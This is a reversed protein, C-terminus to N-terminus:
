QFKPRAAWQMKMALTEWYGVAPNTVVNLKAPHAAVTLQAGSTLPSSVQGDIVATTGANARHVKLTIRDRTTVVIPRFSLTHPCIPTIVLADVDPAVIPGGAALTYATSGTATSVIVGDGAFVTAHAMTGPREITLELEIMRFPPGATIVVDNMALSRFPEGGDRPVVAELM